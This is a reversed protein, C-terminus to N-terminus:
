VTGVKLVVGSLTAATVALCLLWLLLNMLRNAIDTVPSFFSFSQLIKRKKKAMGEGSRSPLVVSGELLACNGALWGHERGERYIM